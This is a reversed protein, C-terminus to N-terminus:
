VENLTENMSGTRYGSLDLTVYTFGLKKIGSVIVPLLEQSALLKAMVEPQLEIRALADHHRVRIQGSCHQRVVEEALEVQSLREATIELGYVLRSVLCAASPKDWTPLGWEKSVARIDEKTFGAELLPSKVQPLEAIAKMGPRFDGLDDANSGEIVWDFGHERSWAVLASFREKKCYYCRQSTNAIFDASNMESAPLVTHKIGIAQAFARAEECERAPSSESVATIAMTNDGLVRHAAAALFTSDVGGSFAIVASKLTLLITNLKNVKEQITIM